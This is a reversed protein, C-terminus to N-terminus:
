KPTCSGDNITRVHGSIGAHNVIGGFGGTQAKPKALENLNTNTTITAM